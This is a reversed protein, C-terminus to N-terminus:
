PLKKTSNSLNSWINEKLLWKYTIRFHGYVYDRTVKSWNYYFTHIGKSIKSSLCRNKLSPIKDLRSFRCHKWHSTQRSVISNMISWHGTKLCIQPRSKSISLGCDIVAMWCCMVLFLLDISKCSPIDVESSLELLPIGKRLYALRFFYKNYM